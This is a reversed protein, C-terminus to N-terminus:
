IRPAGYGRYVRCKNAITLLSIELYSLSGNSLVLYSPPQGMSLDTYSISFFPTRRKPWPKTIMKQHRFVQGTM